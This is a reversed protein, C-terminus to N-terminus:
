DEDPFHLKLAIAATRLLSYGTSRLGHIEPATLFAKMQCKLSKRFRRSNAHNRALGAWCSAIYRTLRKRAEAHHESDRLFTYARIGQEFMRSSHSSMNGGHLRRRMGIRNIIGTPTHRALRFFFHFDECSKLTPEFGEVLETMGRRILFSSAIGFNEQALIPCANPIILEDKGQLLASLQPCTSFHTKGHDGTEDFNVYDSFVLGVEPLKELFHVQQEIRDSPLLDDADLFALYAGQAQAIGTNRPVACGGSNKQYIYRVRPEYKKIIDATNDTSGDDVVITEINEWTQQFVSELTEELYDQANYAPIIISVLPKHAM